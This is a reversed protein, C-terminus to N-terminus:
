SLTRDNYDKIYQEVSPQYYYVALEDEDNRMGIEHSKYQHIIYKTIITFIVLLTTLGICYILTVFLFFSQNAWENVQYEHLCLCICLVCGLICSKYFLIHYRFIRLHFAVFRLTLLLLIFCSLITQYIFSEIGGSEVFTVTYTFLFLFKTTILKMVLNICLNFQIRPQGKSGNKCNENHIHHIANMLGTNSFLFYLHINNFMYYIVTFLHSTSNYWILFTLTNNFYRILSLIFNIYIYVAHRYKSESDLQSFPSSPSATCFLSLMFMSVTLNLSSYFRLCQKFHLLRNLDQANDQLQHFISSPLYRLTLLPDILTIVALTITVCVDFLLFWRHGM